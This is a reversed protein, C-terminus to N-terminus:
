EPAVVRTIMRSFLLSREARPSHSEVFFDESGCDRLISDEPLAFNLKEGLTNLELLLPHASFINELEQGKASITPHPSFNFKEFRERPV